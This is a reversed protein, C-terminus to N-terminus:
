ISTLVSERESGNGIFGQGASPELSSRRKKRDQQTPNSSLKYYLPGLSVM